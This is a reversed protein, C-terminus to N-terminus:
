ILEKLKLTLKVPKGERLVEFTHTDGVKGDEFMKMLDDPRYSGIARGDLSQVRDRERIGAAEASSGPLVQVALYGDQLKAIQVGAMSFRDRSGYRKSPELYVTRHDYDFTAIFRELVQNGINGAYDESALGGTEADPVSVLPSAWSYPGIEMKKMRGLTSTFTGGFGGGTVQVTKGLKSSFDNKKAFPGHVDVTSGSGVDLRFDGEYAGDLKAKVVPINNALTLAVPTGKGEYHFTKPDYLTLTQGDFDVRNAFRSIFDYGLVGAIPRWFFPELYPNLSLVAVNQNALVVGDGDPGTIRLSDVSSFSAGGAAGAGMAHMHGQVSLGYRVAAASDIVTVSAGTDLLFDEPPRGNMSVQLWVHREGYRMPLTARGPTKLYRVAAAAEVPPAFVRSDLKPNIWLSDLTAVADNAPMGVISLVTKFARTRGQIPRYDSLTNIVTRQDSKTVMRTLLGTKTDFWLERMRGVPPTLVLVTYTGTSGKQTGQVAVDGGGQDPMLWSDNEFWASSAAEELDKGDQKSFKGNQDVRWATKGDYGGRITIPGITTVNATLNPQQTWTENVGTLGFASLTAKSHSSREALFADRGGTAALYRDVVKQADPSIKAHAVAPALAAVSGLALAAVWGLVLSRSRPTRVLSRFM